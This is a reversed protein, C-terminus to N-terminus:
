IQHCGSLLDLKTFHTAGYLEDLLEDIVPIPFKDEVIQKNLGIYDVYFRWSGDIKEVLLVPSSYPSHSPQIIGQKLM